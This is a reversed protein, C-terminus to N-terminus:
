PVPMRRESSACRLTPSMSLWRIIMRTTAPLPPLSRIAQGPQTGNSARGAALMTTRALSWGHANMHSSATDMNWEDIDGVHCFKVRPSHARNRRRHDTPTSEKSACLQAFLLLVILFFLALGLESGAVLLAAALKSHPGILFGAALLGPGALIGAVVIHFFRRKLISAKEVTGAAALTMLPAAFGAFHFHVATLLVIPEQFGM